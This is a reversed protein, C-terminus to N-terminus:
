FKFLFSLLFLVWFWLAKPCGSPGSYLYPSNVISRKCEGKM